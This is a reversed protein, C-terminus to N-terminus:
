WVGSEAQGLCVARVQEEQSTVSALHAGQSLCFNEAEHWSKKDRSFYYFNGNFYKWNQLILLLVEDLVFTLFFTLLLYHQGLALRQEM